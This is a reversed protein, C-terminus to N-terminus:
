MSCFCESCMKNHLWIILVSSGCKGNWGTIIPQPSSLGQCKRHQRWSSRFSTLIEKYFDSFTHSKCTSIVFAFNVVTYSAHKWCRLLCNMFTACHDAKEM